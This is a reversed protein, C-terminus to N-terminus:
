LSNGGGELTVLCTQRGNSFLSPTDTEFLALDPDQIREIYPELVQRVQVGDWALMHFIEEADIRKATDWLATDHYTSFRPVEWSIPLYREPFLVLRQDVNPFLDNAIVRDYKGEPEFDHWDSNIWSQEPLARTAVSLDEHVDHAMIDLTTYAHRQALRRSLATYAGGVDLIRLVDSDQELLDGYVYHFIMRKSLSELLWRHSTFGTDGPREASELLRLIVDDKEYEAQLREDFRIM